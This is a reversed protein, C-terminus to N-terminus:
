CLRVVFFCDLSVFVTLFMRIRKNRSEYCISNFMGIQYQSPAYNLESGRVFYALAEVEDKPVGIGNLYCNGACFQFFLNFSLRICMVDYDHSCIM